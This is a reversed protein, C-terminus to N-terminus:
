RRGRGILIDLKGEINSLRGSIKDIKKVEVKLDTIDSKNLAVDSYFVLFWAAFIAVFLFSSLPIWTNGNVYKM